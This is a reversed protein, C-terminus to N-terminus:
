GLVRSKGGVVSHVAANIRIPPLGVRGCEAVVAEASPAEFLGFVVEDAPVALTTVLRVSTWARCGTAAHLRGVIRDLDTEACEQLYWEALYRQPQSM